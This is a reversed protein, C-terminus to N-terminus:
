WTPARVSSRPAWSYGTTIDALNLTTDADVVLSFTLGSTPGPRNFSAVGAGTPLSVGEPGIIRGAMLLDRVIQNTGARLNQNADTLQAASDNITLANRFTTLAAGSILLSIATSVLLEMLTFSHERSMLHVMM